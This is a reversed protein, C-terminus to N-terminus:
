VSGDTRASFSLRDGLFAFDSAIGAALGIVLEPSCQLSNNQLKVGEALLCQFTNNNRSIDNELGCGIWATIAPSARLRFVSSPLFM